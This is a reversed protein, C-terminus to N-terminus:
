QSDALHGGIYRYCLIDSHGERPMYSAFSSTSWVEAEAQSQQLRQEVNKRRAEEEEIKGQAHLRM